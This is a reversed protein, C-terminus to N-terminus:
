GPPPATESASQQPALPSRLMEQAANLHLFETAINEIEVRALASDPCSARIEANLRQAAAVLTSAGVTAAVGMLDHTLLAAAKLEGVAILRELKAPTDMTQMLMRDLLGALARASGNSWAAARTSDLGPLDDPLRDGPGVPISSVVSPTVTAAGLIWHALARYLTEPEVPKSLHANMGVARCADATTALLNATLAIIPVQGGEPLARISRACDFGDLGPMHLDMLIADYPSGVKFCEIGDHGDIAADVEIDLHSLMGELVDRNFQNDEIMLVRRGALPSLSTRPPSDTTEQNEPGTDVASPLPFRVAFAFRSGQGPASEVEIEGGMLKVLKRCITLGLGTGGYIRTTTSEGQVFPFFIDKLKEPFIGIGTDTLSFHLTASTADSACQQIRLTIEGRATFKIANSFLNNLVQELRYTDGILLPPLDPPLEFNFQIFENKESVAAVGALGKVIRNLDFPDAALEIHGAEIKSLDLIDDVLALLLGSSHRMIEAYGRQRPTLYAHELLRAAGVIANVPTRIEHSMHAIFESKALTAAEVKVLAQELRIANNKRETIDTGVGRYGTFEGTASFVPDGSISLHRVTDGTQDTHFRAIEFERFPLHADLVARHAQWGAEDPSISPVDWRHLGIFPIKQLALDAHDAKNYTRQTFRHEADSEWYFDSSMHTLARFRSESAQLATDRQKLTQLLDNFAGILRGVEDQRFLPLAQMSPYAGSMRALRDTAVRIPQLQHQLLWWILGGALLTVVITAFLMRQQMERIPFFAEETPLVLGLSWGTLPITKASALMEVGLPSIGVTSGEEGQMFRDIMPNIGASPLSQLVRRKDSAAVILRSRPSALLYAGTKGYSSGTIQDFFGPIALNIVGAVAGIVKGQADRVPAAMGFVPLGLKKGIVPEGITSRGESLATAIVDIDGYNVGRRGTTVPIDAVANGDIDCVIIGGNFLFPAIVRQELSSQMAAPGALMAQASSAAIRNLAELRDALDRNAETAILAVTSLQQAGMAREMDERLAETTYYTLSWIAALFIILTALTIRTQLSKQPFLKRFM